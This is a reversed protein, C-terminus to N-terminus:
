FNEKQIICLLILLLIWTAIVMQNLFWIVGFKRLQPTRKYFINLILCFLISPVQIAAALNLSRQIPTDGSYQSCKTYSIDPWTGSIKMSEVADIARVTLDFYFGAEIGSSATVGYTNKISTYKGNTMM